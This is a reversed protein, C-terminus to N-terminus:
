SVAKVHRPDNTRIRGPGSFYLSQVAQLSPLDLLGAIAAENVVDGIQSKLFTTLFGNRESWILLHEYYSEDLLYRNGATAEATSLHSFASDISYSTRHIKLIGSLVNQLFHEAKTM